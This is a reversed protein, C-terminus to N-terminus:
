FFFFYFDNIFIIKKKKKKMCHELTKQCEKYQQMDFLTLAINFDVISSPQFKQATRYSELAEEYKGLDGLCNGINVHLNQTNEQDFGGEAAARRYYKLALEPDGSQFSIHGRHRLANSRQYSNPLSELKSIALDYYKKAENLNQQHYYIGALGYAYSANSKDNKWLNNYLKFALDLSEETKLAGFQEAYESQKFPALLKPDKEFIFSVFFMLDDMRDITTKLTNEVALAVKLTMEDKPSRSLLEKATKIAQSEKGQTQLDSVLSQIFDKKFEPNTKLIAAQEKAAKDLQGLKKLAEIL